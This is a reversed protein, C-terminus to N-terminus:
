AGYLFYIVPLNAAAFGGLSNPHAWLGTTGMLKPYGRHTDFQATGTWMGVFPEGVILGVMLIYVWLFTRLKEVTDVTSVIMIYLSFLKILQILTEVSRGPWYSTPITIVLSCFFLLIARDLGNPESPSANTGIRKIAIVLLIASGVLLEVRMAGLIPIRGGIQSYLIIVYALVSKFLM